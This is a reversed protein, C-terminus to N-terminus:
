RVANTIEPDPPSDILAAHAWRSGGRLHPISLFPPRM